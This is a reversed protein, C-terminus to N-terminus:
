PNIQDPGFADGRRACWAARVKAMEVMVMALDAQRGSVFKAAADLCAEANPPAVLVKDTFCTCTDLRDAIEIFRLFAAQERNIGPHQLAWTRMFEADTEEDNDHSM